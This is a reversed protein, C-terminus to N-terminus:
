RRAVIHADAAMKGNQPARGSESRPRCTNRRHALLALISHSSADSRGQWQGGEAARELYSCPFSSRGTSGGMRSAIVSYGQSMWHRCPNPYDNNNTCRRRWNTDPISDFVCVFPAAPWILPNYSVKFFSTLLMTSTPCPSPTM